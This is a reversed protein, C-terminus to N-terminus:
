TYEKFITMGCRFLNGSSTNSINLVLTDGLGFRQKSKPIAYWQNMVMIPNGISENSTLGQHTFLINKKNVYSDLAAMESFSPGLGDKTDKCLTVISSGDVGDNNLWLEIHIAKVTSGDQVENAANATSGEVGKILIFGEEVGTAISSVSIPVYHKSSHVMPRVM